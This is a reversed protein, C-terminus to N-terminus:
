AVKRKAPAILGARIMLVRNAALSIFKELIVGRVFPDAIKKLTLRCYSMATDIQEITVSSEIAKVARPIM